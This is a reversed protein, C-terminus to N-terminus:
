ERPTATAYLPMLFFFVKHLFRSPQGSSSTDFGIRVNFGAKRITRWLSLPNKLNAVHASYYPSKVPMKRHRFVFQYAVVLLHYLDNWQNPTCILVVGGKKLVRKSEDLCMELDKESLHNFVELMVIKDYVGTRFPLHTASARIINGGTHQRAIKVAALSYDIGVAGTTFRDCEKVLEGRGCGIDLVRERPLVNLIQFAWKFRAAIEGDRFENYGACGALYYEEGYLESPPTRTNHM